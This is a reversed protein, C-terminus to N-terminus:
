KNCVETCGCEDDCACSYGTGALRSTLDSLYFGVIGGIIPFIVYATAALGAMQALEGFNDASTPLIQYMLAAVPNFMFGYQIGFFNQTIVMGFIIALTMSSAVVFGFALANKKALKLARAFAFAIVIAGLLEVLAVAWFTEGTVENMIPLPTSAESALRFANIVILGLWGGLLQALMYLVGRIASMRRSAMLGATVLPNLNAGSIGFIAVYLGLVAFTICLPNTGLTLLVMVLLMTGFVEGILAGWIKPTKFITLINENEGYKRAFFGKLPNTSKPASAVVTAKSESTKEKAEKTEKVDKTSKIDKSEKLEKKPEPQSNNKKGSKNPKQNAM